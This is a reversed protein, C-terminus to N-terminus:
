LNLPPHYALLMLLNSGVDPQKSESVYPMIHISPRGQMSMPGGVLQVLLKEWGGIVHM